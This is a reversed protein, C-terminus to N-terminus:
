EWCTKFAVFNAGRLEDYRNLYWTLPAVLISIWLTLLFMMRFSSLVNQWRTLFHVVYSCIYCFIHVKLNILIRVFLIFYLLHYKSVIIMMYVFQKQMFNYYSYKSKPLSWALLSSFFDFPIIITSRLSFILGKSTCWFHGWLQPAEALGM